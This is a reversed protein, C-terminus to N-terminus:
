YKIYLDGSDVVVVKKILYFCLMPWLWDGQMQQPVWESYQFHEEAERGSFWDTLKHCEM